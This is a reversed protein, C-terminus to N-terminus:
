SKDAVIVTWAKGVITPAPNLSCLSNKQTTWKHKAPEDADAYRRSIRGPARASDVFDALAVAADLTRDVIRTRARLRALAARV